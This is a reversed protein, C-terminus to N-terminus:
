KTAESNGKNVENNINKLKTRVERAAVVQPKLLEVVKTDRVLLLSDGDCFAILRREDKLNWKDRVARPVSIFLSGNKTEIRALELIPGLGFLKILDVSNSM